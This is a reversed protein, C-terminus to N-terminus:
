LETWPGRIRKKAATGANWHRRIMLVLVLYVPFLVVATVVIEHIWFWGQSWWANVTVAIFLGTFTAALVLEACYGAVRRM